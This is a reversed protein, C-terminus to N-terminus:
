LINLNLRHNNIRLKLKRDILGGAVSALAARLRQGGDHHHLALIGSISLLCYLM